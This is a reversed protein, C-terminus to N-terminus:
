SNLIIISSHRSFGGPMREQDALKLGCDPNVSHQVSLAPKEITLRFDAITL